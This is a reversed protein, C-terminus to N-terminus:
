ATGERHCLGVPGGLVHSGGSRTSAALLVGPVAAAEARLRDWGDLVDRGAADVLFWVPAEPQGQLGPRPPDPCSSGCRHRSMKPLSRHGPYCYWLCGDVFVAVRIRIFVIDPRTRGVGPLPRDVRYRLRRRHLERRLAMEPATHRKRVRSM